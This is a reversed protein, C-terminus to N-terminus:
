WRLDKSSGGTGDDLAAVFNTLTIFALRATKMKQMPVDSDRTCQHYVSDKGTKWLTYNYAHFFRREM